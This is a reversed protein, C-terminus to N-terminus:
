NAWRLKSEWDFARGFDEERHQQDKWECAACVYLDWSGCPSHLTGYLRLDSTAGCKCCQCNM